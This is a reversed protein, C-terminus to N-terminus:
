QKQIEEWVKDKYEERGSLGEYESYREPSKLYFDQHYEEAEYFSKYPLVPTVIPRDFRGSEGLEAISAETTLRQEENHYFVAATYAFGRDVFQGGGDTPDIGRWLIVLIEDYTIVNPDFTVRVAERHGTTNKYVQEYTPDVEDGGAYGSVASLVGETQQFAAEMCWFCGAAITAVETGEPFVFEVPAVLVVQDEAVLVVEERVSM